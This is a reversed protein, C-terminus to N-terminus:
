DQLVRFIIYVHKSGAKYYQLLLSLHLDLLLQLVGSVGSLVVVVM